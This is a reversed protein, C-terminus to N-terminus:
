PRVLKMQPHARLSFWENSLAMILHIVVSSWINGTYLTLYCLIVGLPIAGIVELPGKYFHAISYLIVNLLTAYLPGLIRLAAFFLLGRFLFEYAILFVVWSGASLVLTKLTWREARIQPYVALNVPSAAHLFVAALIAPPLLYSWWPPAHQFRFALGFQQPSNGSELVILLSCIGLFLVGWMRQLIVPLVEPDSAPLGLHFMRPLRQSTSLLYYLTFGAVSWLLAMVLM